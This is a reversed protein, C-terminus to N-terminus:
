KWKANFERAHKGRLVRGHGFSVVAFDLQALKALSRRGAAHDDYVISPALGMLNACADAAFLMGGDRELLFSTHGASHGPTHIVRLGGGVPLLQGDHLENEIDARPISRAVVNAFMSYLLNNLLGPSPTGRVMPRTGRVVDADPELMYAPAGSARKLHALGGVHDPHSHTLVIRKVASPQAGLDALAKLIRQERNAYGTDLLTWGDQDRILWVNVIGSLEYVGPFIPRLPM